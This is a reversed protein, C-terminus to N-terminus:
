KKREIKWIYDINCLKMMETKNILGHKPDLFQKRECDWVIYHGSLGEEKWNLAVLAKGKRPLRKFEKWKFGLNEVAELVDDPYIGGSIAKFFPKVDDYLKGCLM